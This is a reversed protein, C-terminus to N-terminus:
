GILSRASRDADVVLTVLDSTLCGHFALAGARERALFMLWLACPVDQGYRSSLFRGRPYVQHVGGGLVWGALDAALPGLYPTPDVVCLGRSTGQLWNGDHLDGHLLTSPGSLGFELLEEGVEEWRTMGMENHFTRSLERVSALQRMEGVRSFATPWCVQEAVDPVRSALREIVDLQQGWEVTSSAQLPSGGHRSVMWRDGSVLVEPCVEPGWFLAAAVQESVSSSLPSVKAVARVGEYRGSVVYSTMSGTLLMEPLFGACEMETLIEPFDRQFATVAAPQFCRGMSALLEDPIGPWSGYV